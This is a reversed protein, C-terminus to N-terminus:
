QGHELAVPTPDAPEADYSRIVAELDGPQPYQGGVLSLPDAQLDDPCEGRLRMRGSKGELEAHSPCGGRV